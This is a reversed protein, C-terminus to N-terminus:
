SRGRWFPQDTWRREGAYYERRQRVYDDFETRVRTAYEDLAAGNGRLRADVAAAALGAHRMAKFVGRGSLPDYSSASDGVAVWDGGSITRRCSSSVRVVRSGGIHGGELRSRTLPADALQDGLVIGEAAYEGPDAFFMAVTGSALRATYWWGSRTSEIFTRWDAPPASAYRVELVIGLLVDDDDRACGGDIRLGNRGSADVLFRAEVRGTRWGGDPERRPTGTTRPVVAAGARAAEGCLMEDFRNRDVHWGSGHRNGVFDQERAVSSGWASVIGPADMPGLSQFAEWLGLERLVPNIEPPLTEGYRGGQFATSELLAVSWGRRALELSVIAGAPGGGIVAVDVTM